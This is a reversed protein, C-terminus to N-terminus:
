ALSQTIDAGNLYVLVQEVALDAPINIEVRADGGSILHAPSSLVNLTFDGEISFSTKRKDISDSCGILAMTLIATLLSKAAIDTFFKNLRKDGLFLM